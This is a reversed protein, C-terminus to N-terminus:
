DNPDHAPAGAGTDSWARVGLEHVLRGGQHAANAVCLAGVAHAILYVLTMGVVARRAADGGWWALAAIVVLAAALGLVFVEASEGLEEHQHLVTEAGPVREAHREGAEGSSAALVAGGGAICMLSAAAALLPRRHARVLLALVVLVPVVLVLAIPVHVVIPHVADWAPIPPISFM